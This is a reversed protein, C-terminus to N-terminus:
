CFQHHFLHLSKQFKDKLNLFEIVGDENALKELNELKEKSIKM